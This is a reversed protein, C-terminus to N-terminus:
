TRAQLRPGEPATGINTGTMLMLLGSDEPKKTPPHDGSCSCVGGPCVGGLALGGWVRGMSKNIGM